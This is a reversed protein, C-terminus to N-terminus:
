CSGSEWFRFWTFMDEGDIGGDQNVDTCFEAAEWAEMFAAVDGGDVGGDENFDMICWPCISCIEFRVNIPDSLANGCDNAVFVTYTGADLETAPQILLQPSQTGGLNGGDTLAQGDKYWQITSLAHRLEPAMPANLQAGGYSCAIMENAPDIPWLYPPDQMLWAGRSSSRATDGVATHAIVSYAYYPETPNAVHDYFDTDSTRAVEMMASQNSLPARLISYDTACPSPTITIRFTNCGYSQAEIQPTSFPHGAASGISVRPGECLPTRTSVAYHFWGQAPNADVFFPTTINEAIKVYAGYASTARWVSYTIAVGPSAALPSWRLAIQNCQTTSTGYLIRPSPEIRNRSSRSAPGQGCPNVGRVFYCMYRGYLSTPFDLDDFHRETTTGVIQADNINCTLSRYVIYQEARAAAPWSLQPYCAIPEVFSVPYPASPPSTCPQATAVLGPTALTCLLALTTHRM